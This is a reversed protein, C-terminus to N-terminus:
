AASAQAQLFPAQGRHPRSRSSRRAYAAFSRPACRRRATASRRTPTRTSRSSSATRESPPPPSRCRSSSTAAGPPMAPTSSSRCTREAGQARAGGHPRAHLPLRDRLHPHRARVADGGRQGGQPRVRRGDRLEELTSSLGRKLLVPRGAAASRPRAPRLEAHQARRDPHRRGGRAGARPRARGDARHRDAPRDAGQGRRAPAPGGGRAGPVLVPSTRPKYAGGRLM